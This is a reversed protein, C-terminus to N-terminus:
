VGFARCLQIIAFAGSVIPVAATVLMTAFLAAEAAFNHQAEKDFYDRSISRFSPSDKACRGSFEDLAVSHYNCDVLPVRDQSRSTTLNPKMFNGAAQKRQSADHMMAPNLLKEGRAAGIAIATGRGFVFDCQAARCHSVITSQSIGARSESRKHSV